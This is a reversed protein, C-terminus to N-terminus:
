PKAPEQDRLFEHRRLWALALNPWEKTGPLGPALGVGHPGFEYLHLEFPIKSQRLAQAFLLSNEPLVPVDELTHFLFTPPTDATVQLENSMLQELEETPEPGLLNARSGTHTIEPRMTIVPYCLILFAPRSSVRLLPDESDTAAPVIHTGGTSALHGGASFGMLGIRDPSLNWEAARAKVTQMARQVDLMPVPHRYKPGVRYRLIFATIGQSSLWQGIDRGEHAIAHGSYGGGPCVVIGTDSARGEPAYVTLSPKDKFGEGNAMPAGHPWLLFSPQGALPDNPPAQAGVQRTTTMFSLVMLGLVLWGCLMRTPRM